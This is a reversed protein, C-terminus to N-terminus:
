KGFELNALERPADTAMIRHHVIFTPGPDVIHRGSRDVLNIMWSDPESIVILGHIGHASDLEEEVRSYSEGAIYITRPKAGFSDPPIEPSVFRCVIRTVEPNTSGAFAAANCLLLGILILIRHM